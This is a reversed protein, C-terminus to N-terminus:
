GMAKRVRARELAAEVVCQKKSQVQQDTHQSQAATNYHKSPTEQEFRLAHANKKRLRREAAHAHRQRATEAQASSWAAWGTVNGSVNELHICDVPCVPVCLECGTCYYEIVTHMRKITGFIADTPCAAICQTCGICWSEDIFAVMRPAEIGFLPNLPLAVSGIVAALRNAGEQGGPPCQNTAAEASAIAKAYAACDPYGCRTCQTQPLASLLRQAVGQQFPPEPKM